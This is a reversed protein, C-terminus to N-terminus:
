FQQQADGRGIENVLQYQVGCQDESNVTRGGKEDVVERVHREHACQKKLNIKERALKDDEEAHRAYYV